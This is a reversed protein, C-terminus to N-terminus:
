RTKKWNWGNWFNPKGMILWIRRKEQPESDPDPIEEMREGEGLFWIKIKNSGLEAESFKIERGDVATVIGNHMKQDEVAIVVGMFMSTDHSMTTDIYLVNAMEGHSMITDMLSPLVQRIEEMVGVIPKIIVQDQTIECTASLVVSETKLKEDGQHMTDLFHASAKEEAHVHIGPSASSSSFTEDGAFVEGVLIGVNGMDARHLLTDFMGPYAQESKDWVVDVMNFYAQESKGHVADTLSSHAQTNKQEISDIAKIKSIQEDKQIFTYVEMHIDAMETSSVDIGDSGNMCVTEETKEIVDNVIKRRMDCANDVKEGTIDQSKVKDVDSMIGVQEQRTGVIRVNETNMSDQVKSVSPINKEESAENELVTWGQEEDRIVSDGTSITSNILRAYATGNIASDGAMSDDLNTRVAEREAVFFRHSQSCFTDKVDGIETIQEDNRIQVAEQLSVDVKHIDKECGNQIADGYGQENKSEEGAVDHLSSEQILNEVGVTGLRSLAENDDHVIVEAGIITGVEGAHFIAQEIDPINGETDRTIHGVYLVNNGEWSKNSIGQYEVTAAGNEIDTVRGQTENVPVDRLEKENAEYMATIVGSQGGEETGIEGYSVAHDQAKEVTDAIRNILFDNSYQPSMVHQPKATRTYRNSSEIAEGNEEAKALRREAEVGITIRQVVASSQQIPLGHQSDQIRSDYLNKSFGTQEGDRAATHIHKEIGDRYDRKLSFTVLSDYRGGQKRSECSTCVEKEIGDGICMTKSVDVKPTTSDMVSKGVLRKGDLLSVQSNQIVEAGVIQEPISDGISERQKASDQGIMVGDLILELITAQSEKHEIM